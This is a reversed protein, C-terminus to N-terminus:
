SHSFPVLPMRSGWRTSLLRRPVRVLGVLGATGAPLGLGRRLVLRPFAIFARGAVVVVELLLAAGGGLAALRFVLRFLGVVGGDDDELELEDLVVWSPM